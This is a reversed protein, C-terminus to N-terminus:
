PVRPLRDTGHVVPRMYGVAIALLYAGGGLGTAVLEPVIRGLVLGIAIAAVMAAVIGSMALPRLGTSGFRRSVSWAYLGAILVSALLTGAVAAAVGITPIGVVDIAVVVVLALSSAAVRRGQADASTLTMGFLYGLFRFPLVFSLAALIPGGDALDPGFLVTMLGGAGTVFVVPGLCAIALLHTATSGVIARVQAADHVALRSLEPYAARSLADPLYEFTAILRAAAYYAGATALGGTPLLLGLLVTDVRSYVIGTLSFAGFPLALRLTEGLSRGTASGAPLAGYRAVLIVGAAISGLWVVLGLAFAVALDAGVALAGCVVVVWALNEVIAHGGSIAMRQQANFVSRTLEATQQAMLGAAVLAVVQPEKAGALVGVVFTGALLGPGTLVRALFGIRLLPRAAAADRSAERILLSAIGLDAITAAIAGVALGLGVEGLADPGRLRSVVALVVLTTIASVLRAALLFGTNRRMEGIVGACSCSRM